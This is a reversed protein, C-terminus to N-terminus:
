ARSLRRMLSLAAHAVVPVPPAPCHRLRVCAVRLAPAAPFLARLAAMRVGMGWLCQLCKRDGVRLRSPTPGRLFPTPPGGVSRRGASRTARPPAPGSGVSVDSVVTVDRSPPPPPGGRRSPRQAEPSGGLPQGVSTCRRRRRALSATAPCARGRRRMPAARRGSTIGHDPVPIVPARVTRPRRRSHEAGHRARPRGRSPRSATRAPARATRWQRPAAGTQAASQQKGGGGGSRRGIPSPWAVPPPASEFECTPPANPAM